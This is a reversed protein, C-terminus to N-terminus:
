KDLKSDDLTIKLGPGRMAALGGVMSAGDVRENLTASGQQQGAGNTRAQDIQRRLNEVQRQLDATTRRQREILAALQYRRPVRSEQSAPRARFALIAVFGLLACGVVATPRIRRAM